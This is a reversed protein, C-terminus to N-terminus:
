VLWHISVRPASLLLIRCIGNAARYARLRRHAWGLRLQPRRCVGHHADKVAVLPAPPAAVAVPDLRGLVRVVRLVALAVLAVPVVLVPRGM